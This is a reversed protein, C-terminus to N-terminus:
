LDWREALHSEIGSGFARQSLWLLWEYLPPQRLQYGLSLTQVLESARSDDLTLTRSISLRLVAHAVGYVAWFAIVGRLSLLRDLLDGRAEAARTM